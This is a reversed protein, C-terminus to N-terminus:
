EFIVRLYEFSGGYLIRNINQLMTKSITVTLLPTKHTNHDSSNRGESAYSSM